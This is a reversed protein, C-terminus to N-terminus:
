LRVTATSERNLLAASENKIKSLEMAVLAAGAESHRSRFRLFLVIDHLYRVAHLYGGLIQADSCFDDLLEEADPLRWFNLLEDGASFIQLSPNLKLESPSPAAAIIHGISESRLARL